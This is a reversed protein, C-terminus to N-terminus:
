GADACRDDHNAPRPDDDRRVRPERSVGMAAHSARGVVDVHARPHRRIRPSDDQRERRHQTRGGPRQADRQTRRAAIRDDVVLVDAREIIENAKMTVVRANRLVVRRAPSGQAGHARYRIAGDDAARSRPRVAIAWPGVRCPKWGVSFSPFSGGVETLRTTPLPSQALKTTSIAPVDSGSPILDVLYLNTRVNALARKGNPAILIEDASEEAGRTWAWGTMKLLSRRDSGDWAMSILGDVGDYAYVRDIGAVFQAGGPLGDYNSPFTIPSILRPTACASRTAACGGPAM